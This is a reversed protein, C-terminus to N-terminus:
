SVAELAAWDPEHAKAAPRLPKPKRPQAFAQSGILLATLAFRKM